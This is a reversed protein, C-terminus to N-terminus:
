CQHREGEARVTLILISVASPTGLGRAATATRGEEEDADRQGRGEEDSLVELESDRQDRRFADCRREDSARVDTTPRVPKILEKM